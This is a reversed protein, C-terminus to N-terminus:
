WAKDGDRNLDFVRAQLVQRFQVDNFPAKPAPVRAGLQLTGDSNTDLVNIARLSSITNKLGGAPDADPNLGEPVFTAVLDEETSARRADLLYNVIARGLGPLTRPPNLVAM